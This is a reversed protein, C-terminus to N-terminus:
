SVALNRKRFIKHWIKQIVVVIFTVLAIVGLNKLVGTLALSPNFKDRERGGRGDFFGDDGAGPFGQGEFGQGFSRDSPSHNTFEGAPSQNEYEGSPLQGRVGSESQLPLGVTLQSSSNVLLYLGGSILGAALLILIIRLITKLM